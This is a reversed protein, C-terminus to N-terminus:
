VDICCDSQDIHLWVWSLKQGTALNGLVVVLPFSQGREGGVGVVTKSWNCSKRFGSCPPLEARKRWGSRGCLCNSYM